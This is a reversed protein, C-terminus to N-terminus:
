SLLDDLDLDVPPPPAARRRPRSGKPRALPRYFASGEGQRWVNWCVEMIPSNGREKELFAPRWTLPLIESPTRDEFLARRGAAHWYTGKLLMAVNPALSLAKRIFEQALSFPPNTIIWESMVALDDNLFDGVTGFGTDRIDTSVVDLGAAEMVLSLDGDGCAPEWALTGEPLRLHDLLAQTADHPTPYFDAPKRSWAKQAAVVASAITAM